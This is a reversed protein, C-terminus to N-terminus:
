AQCWLRRQAIRTTVASLVSEATCDSLTACSTMTGPMMVAADFGLCTAFVTVTMHRSQRRSVVTVADVPTGGVALKWHWSRRMRSQRASYFACCYMWTLCAWLCVRVARV